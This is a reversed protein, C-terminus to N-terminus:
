FKTFDALFNPFVNPTTVLFLLFMYKNLAQKCRYIQAYCCCIIDANKLIQVLFQKPGFFFIKRGFMLFVTQVSAWFNPFDWHLGGLFLPYAFFIECAVFFLPCCFILTIVTGVM